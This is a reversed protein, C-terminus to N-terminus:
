GDSMVWWEDGMVKKKQFTGFEKKTWFRVTRVFINLKKSFWTSAVHMCFADQMDHMNCENPMYKWSLLLNRGIIIDKEDSESSNLAICWEWRSFWWDWKLLRQQPGLVLALCNCFHAIVAGTAGYNSVKRLKSLLRFACNDESNGFGWIIVNRMVASLMPQIYWMNIKLLVQIESYSRWFAVHASSHLKPFNLTNESSYYQHLLM